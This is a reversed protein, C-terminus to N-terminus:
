STHLVYAYVLAVSHPEEWESVYFCIIIDHVNQSKHGKEKDSQLFFVLGVPWPDSVQTVYGSCIHINHLMKELGTMAVLSFIMM